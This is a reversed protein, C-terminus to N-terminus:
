ATSVAFRALASRSTFARASEGTVQPTAGTLADSSDM